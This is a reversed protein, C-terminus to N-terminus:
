HLLSKGCRSSVVKGNYYFVVTDNTKDISRAIKRSVRKFNRSLYFTFYSQDDTIAITHVSIGSVTYHAHLFKRM